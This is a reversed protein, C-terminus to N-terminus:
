SCSIEQVLPYAFRHDLGGPSVASKALHSFLLAIARSPFDGLPDPLCLRHPSTTRRGLLLSDASSQRHPQHYRKPISIYQTPLYTTSDIPLALNVSLLFWRYKEARLAERSGRLPLAISKKPTPRIPKFIAM